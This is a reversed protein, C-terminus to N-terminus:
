IKDCHWGDYNAVTIVGERESESDSCVTKDREIGARDKCIVCYERECSLFCMLLIILSSCVKLLIRKTKM